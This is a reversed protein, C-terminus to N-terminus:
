TSLKKGGASSDAQFLSLPVGRCNKDESKGGDLQCRFKALTKIRWEPLAPDTTSGDARKLCLHRNRAGTWERRQKIGCSLFM